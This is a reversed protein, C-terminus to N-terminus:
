FNMLESNDFVQLSKHQKLCYVYSDSWSKMENSFWYCKGRYKLWKYYCYSLKDKMLKGTYVSLLNTPIIFSAIHVLLNKHQKVI